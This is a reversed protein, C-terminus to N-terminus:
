IVPDDQINKKDEESIDHTIFCIVDANTNQKKLGLAALICGDLYAAQKTKPNPFMGIAYAFKRKGDKIMFSKKPVKINLTDNCYIFSTLYNIFPNDGIQKDSKHKTTIEYEIFDKNNKIEKFNLMPPRVYDIGEVVQINTIESNDTM